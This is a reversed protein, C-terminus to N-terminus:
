GGIEAAPAQAQAAIQQILQKFYEVNDSAHPYHAREQMMWYRLLTQPQSPDGLAGQQLNTLNTEWMAERQDEMGGSSDTSFAYSAYYDWRGLEDEELFDYRSFTADHTIGLADVYQMVRDEDAYALYLEFIVRDIDAYASRKMVRKSEIRGASQQMLAQVAKGSQGAYDAQGRYANTIGVAQKAQEYIRDSQAIDQAINPTTDITGYQNAYEGPRLKIIQGFVANNMQVSADEPMMPTVSSRMLKQMIRSELKNIAQQYPKLTECDSQGSISRHASINKRVIFPLLKPTYYPVTTQEMVVDDVEETVPVINGNLLETIPNGLDDQVARVVKHTKMTGDENLAPSTNPIVRGDSLVVNDYITERDRIETRWKPSECECDGEDKGCKQCVRIRRAYYDDIDELETDGTFVYKCVRGDRKYYCVIVTIVRDEDTDETIENDLEGNDEIDVGYRQYIDDKTSNYRFFAYELDSANYVNPQPFFDEPSLLTISVGGREKEDGANDDWEVLWVSSGFIYTYREDMDNMAEFPLMDRVHRLLRETAIANRNHLPSYRIATCKPAPIETSVQAEILEYTINRVASARESSGDIETSGQYQELWKRQKARDDGYRDKTAQYLEGFFAIKEGVIQM